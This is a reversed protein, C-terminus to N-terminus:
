YDTTELKTAEGESAEEQTMTEGAANHYGSDEEGRGRGGDDWKICLNTKGRDRGSMDEYHWLPELHANRQLSSSSWITDKRVPCGFGPFYGPRPYRRKAFEKGESPKEMSRM